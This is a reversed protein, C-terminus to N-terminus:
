DFYCDIWVNGSVDSVLKSGCVILVSRDIALRKVEATM